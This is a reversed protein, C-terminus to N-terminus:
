EDDDSTVLASLDLDFDAAAARIIDYLAAKARRKENAAKVKAFRRGAKELQAKVAELAEKTKEADTKETVPALKEALYDAPVEATLDKIKGELEEVKEKPTDASEKAAELEKTASEISKVRRDYRALETRGYRPLTIEHQAYLARIANSPKLREPDVENGGEKAAEADDLIAVAGPFLEGMIRRSEDRDPGDFSELWEVVVDSMKNQSARVMSAHATLRDVDDDAISKKVTDYIESAANKTTKRDAMLDPLNDADPNPIRTRVDLITHALKEGVNGLKLGLDLGENFLKVGDTVLKKVGDYQYFDDAVDPAPNAGSRSHPKNGAPVAVETSPAAAPEPKLEALRAKKADAVTKRLATRKNTPLKAIIDEAQGANAEAADATDAVKIADVHEHVKSILADVDQTPEPKEATKKAAPMNEGKNHADRAEQARDAAEAHDAGQARASEFAAKYAGDADVPTINKRTVTIDLGPVQVPEETVVVDGTPVVKSCGACLDEEPKLEMAPGFSRLPTKFKTSCYAVNRGDADLEPKLAHLTGGSGTASGIRVDGRVDKLKLKKTAMTRGGTEKNNDQQASEVPEAADTDLESVHTPQADEPTVEVTAVRHAEWGNPLRKAAAEPSMSWRAAVFEGDKEVIAVHTYTRASTRTFKEGKYEATFKMTDAGDDSDDDQSASEILSSVHTTVEEAAIGKAQAYDYGADFAARFAAAYVAAEAEDEIDADLLARDTAHQLESMHDEHASAYTNVAFFYWRETNPEFGEERSTDDANNDASWLCRECTDPNFDAGDATYKLADWAREWKVAEAAAAEDAERTRREDAAIALAAKDCRVCFDGRLDGYEGARGCLTEDNGVTLHTAKGAGITMLYLPKATKYVETRQM